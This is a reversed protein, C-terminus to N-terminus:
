HVPPIRSRASGLSPRVKNLTVTTQSLPADLSGPENGAVDLVVYGRPQGTAKDIPLMADYALSVPIWYSPYRRM